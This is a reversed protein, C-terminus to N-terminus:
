MPLFDFPSPLEHQRVSLFGRRERLYYNWSWRLRPLFAQIFEENTALANMAFDQLSLNAVIKSGLSM